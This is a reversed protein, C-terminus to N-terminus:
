EKQGLMGFWAYILEKIFAVMMDNGTIIALRIQGIIYARYQGHTRKLFEDLNEKNEEM